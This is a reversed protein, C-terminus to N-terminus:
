YILVVILFPSQPLTLDDKIQENSGNFILEGKIFKGETVGLVLLNSLFKDVFVHAYVDKVM